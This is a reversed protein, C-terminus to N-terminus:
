GCMGLSRRGGSLGGRRAATGRMGNQNAHVGAAGRAVDKGGVAVAALDKVLGHAHDGFSAAADDEIEVVGRAAEFDVAGGGRGETGLAGGDGGLMAFLMGAAKNQM